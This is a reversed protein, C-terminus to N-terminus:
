LILFIIVVNVSIDNKNLFSITIMINESLDISEAKSNERNGIFTCKTELTILIVPLKNNIGM